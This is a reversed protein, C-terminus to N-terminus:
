IVAYRCSKMKDKLSVRYKLKLIKAIKKDQFTRISNMRNKLFYDYYNKDRIAKAIQKISPYINDDNSNLKIANSTAVLCDFERLQNKFLYNLDVTLQWNNDISKLEDIEGFKEVDPQRQNGTLNDKTAKVLNNWIMAIEDKATKNIFPNISICVTGWSKCIRDKSIGEAQSLLRMQRVFEETSTINQKYPLVYGLGLSEEKNISNSFVMSFTGNRSEESLRGYRIPLPVKLKKDLALESQWKKRIETPDWLLSGITIAGVKINM